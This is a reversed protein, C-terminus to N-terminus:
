AALAERGKRTRPAKPDKATAVADKQVREVHNLLLGHAATLQADSLLRLLEVCAQLRASTAMDAPTAFKDERPASGSPTLGADPNIAVASSSKRGARMRRAAAAQEATQPRELGTSEVLRSWAKRASPEAFGTADIYGLVWSARVAAWENVSDTTTQGSYPTLLDVIAQAADIEASGFKQGALFAPEIALNDKLIQAPDLWGKSEEVKSTPFKVLNTKM